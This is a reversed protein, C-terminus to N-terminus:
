YRLHKSHQVEKSMNGEPLCLTLMSFSKRAESILGRERGGFVGLCTVLPHVWICLSFGRCNSYTQIHVLTMLYPQDQGSAYSQRRFLMLGHSGINDLNRQPYLQAGTTRPAASHCNAISALSTALNVQGSCYTM